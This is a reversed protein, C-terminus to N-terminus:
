QLLNTEAELVDPQYIFVTDRMYDEPLNARKTYNEFPPIKVFNFIFAVRRPKNVPDYFADMFFEASEPWFKKYKPRAWFETVFRRLKQHTFRETVSLKEMRPWEYLRESGDDFTVIVTSFQNFKPLDPSFLNWRQKLGFLIVVTELYNM